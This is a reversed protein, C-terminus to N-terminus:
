WQGVRYFRQRGGVASDTLWQAGGRGAVLPRPTWGGAALSDKFELRYVRGSLTSLRVSFSDQSWMPNALPRGLDPPGAGMLALNHEGGSALAVVDSLGAPVATQGYGDFGWAVVTGAARLALSFDYGGAM